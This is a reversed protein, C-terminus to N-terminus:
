KAPRAERDYCDVQRKCDDLTLAQQRARDYRQGLERAKSLLMAYCFSSWVEESPWLKALSRRARHAVRWAGAGESEDEPSPASGDPQPQTM